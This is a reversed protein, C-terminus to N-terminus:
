IEIRVALIIASVGGGRRRDRANYRFTDAINKTANSARRSSLILNRDRHLTRAEFLSRESIIRARISIRFHMGIVINNCAAREWMAGQLQRDRKRCSTDILLLPHANMRGGNRVIILWRATDKIAVRTCRRHACVTRWINVYRYNPTATKVSCKIKGRPLCM